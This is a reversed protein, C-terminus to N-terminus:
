YRLSLVLPLALLLVLSVSAPFVTTSKNAATFAASTDAITAASSATITAVDAM